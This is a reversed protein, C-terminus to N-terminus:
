LGFRFILIINFWFNYRLFLLLAYRVLKLSIDLLIIIKLLGIAINTIIMIRILKSIYVENLWRSFVFWIIVAIFVLIDILCGLLIVAIFILLEYGLSHYFLSAVARMKCKVLSRYDWMLKLIALIVLCDLLLLLLLFFKLFLLILLLSYIEYLVHGNLWAAADWILGGLM